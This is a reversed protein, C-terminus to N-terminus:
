SKWTDVKERWDDWKSMKCKLQLKGANKRGYLNKSLMFKGKWEEEVNELELSIKQKNKIIRSLKTNSALKTM